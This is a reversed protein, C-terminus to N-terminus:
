QPLQTRSATEPVFNIGLGSAADLAFGEPDDMGLESSPEELFTLLLKESRPGVYEALLGFADMEFRM